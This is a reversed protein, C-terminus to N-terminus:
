VTRVICWLEFGLSGAGVLVGAIALAANRKLDTLTLQRDAPLLRLQKGVWVLAQTVRSNDGFPGEGFRGEGFPRDKALDAFSQRLLGYAAMLFGLLEGATAWALPEM